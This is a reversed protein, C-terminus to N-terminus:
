TGKFTTDPFKKTGTELNLCRSMFPRFLEWPIYFWNEKTPRVWSRPYGLKVTKFCLIDKFLDDILLLGVAM